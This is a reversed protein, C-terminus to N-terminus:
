YITNVIVYVRVIETDHKEMILELMTWFGSIDLTCVPYPFMTGILSLHYLM